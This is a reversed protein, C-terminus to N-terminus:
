GQPKGKREEKKGQRNEATASQIDIMSRCMIHGYHSNLIGTPFTSGHLFQRKRCACLTLKWAAIQLRQKSALGLIGLGLLCPLVSSASCGRSANLVLMLPPTPAVPKCTNVPKCAAHSCVHRTLPRVHVSLHLSWVQVLWSTCCWSGLRSGSELSESSSYVICCFSCICVNRASRHIKWTAECIKM